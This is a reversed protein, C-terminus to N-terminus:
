SVQARIRWLHADEAKRLRQCEDFATVRIAEARLRVDTTM